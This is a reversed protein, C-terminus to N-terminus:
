LPWFDPILLQQQIVSGWLSSTPIEGRRESSEPPESKVRSEQRHAETDEGRKILVSPQDLIIEDGDKLLQM